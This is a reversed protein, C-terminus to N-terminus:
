MSRKIKKQQVPALQEKIYLAVIDKNTYIGRKSNSSISSNYQPAENIFIKDSLLKSDWITDPLNYFNNM